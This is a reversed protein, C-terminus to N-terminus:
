APKQQVRFAMDAKFDPLAVACATGESCSVEFADLYKGQWTDYPRITYTGGAL